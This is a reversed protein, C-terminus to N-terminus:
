ERELAPAQIHLRHHTDLKVDIPTRRREERSIGFPHPVDAGENGAGADARKAPPDLALVGVRASSRTHAPAIDDLSARAHYCHRTTSGTPDARLDLSPLVRDCCSLAALPLFHEPLKDPHLHLKM